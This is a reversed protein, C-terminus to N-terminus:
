EGGLHKTIVDNCADVLKNALEKDVPSAQTVNFWGQQKEDM